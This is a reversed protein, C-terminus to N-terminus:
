SPGSLAGRIKHEVRARINEEGIFNKAMPPLDIDITVDVEEVLVSGSLPLSIFGVRATMSFEMRPGTWRRQPNVMEIAKSGMDLLDGASRDVMAIAKERTTNHPVVVKM